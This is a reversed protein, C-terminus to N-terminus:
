GRSIAPALLDTRGREILYDVLRQHAEPTRNHVHNFLPQEAKIAAEEADLAASRNPFHQVTRDAAFNMWTSKKVHGRTRAALDDSIGIYLLRDVEDFWRYLDTERDPDTAAKRDRAWAVLPIERPEEPGRDTVPLPGCPNEDTRSHPGIEPVDLGALLLARRLEPMLTGLLTEAYWLPDQNGSEDGFMRRLDREVSDVLAAPALYDYTAFEEDDFISVSMGYDM